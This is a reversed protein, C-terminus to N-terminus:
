SVPVATPEPVNVKVAKSVPPLALVGAPPDVTVTVNPVGGTSWGMLWSTLGPCSTRLQLAGPEVPYGARVQGTILRGAIVSFPVVCVAVDGALGM